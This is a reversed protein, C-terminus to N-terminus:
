RGAGCSGSVPTTTFLRFSDSSPRAADIKWSLTLGNIERQLQPLCSAYAAVDDRVSGIQAQNPVSQLAWNIRQLSQQVNGARAAVRRLQQRASAATREDAAVRERLSALQAQLSAIQSHSRSVQTAGRIGWTAGAVAVGMALFV